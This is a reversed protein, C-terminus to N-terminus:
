DSKLRGDHLTINLTHSMNRYDYYADVAVRLEKVAQEVAEELDKEIEQLIRKRINQRIERFLIQAYEQPKM